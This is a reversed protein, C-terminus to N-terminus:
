TQMKASPSLISIITIALWHWSNSCESEIQVFFSFIKGHIDSVFVCRKKEELKLCILYYIHLFKCNKELQISLFIFFSQHFVFNASHCFIWVKKIRNTTTTAFNQAFLIFTRTSKIHLMTFTKSNIFMM